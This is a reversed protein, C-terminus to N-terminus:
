ESKLHGKEVLEQVLEQVKKWIEPATQGIHRNVELVQDATVGHEQWAKGETYFNHLLPDFRDLAAAFKAEPTERREFEAWLESLERAQDIPLLGFIRKAAAREKAVHDGDTKRDYVIVDGADIEVIDHILAMRIVKSIDVSDKTYESLVLAMIAFHWSHEVDSDHRSRDLLYTQRYVHKLRDIEILFNIQQELRESTMLSGPPNDPQPADVRTPEQDM